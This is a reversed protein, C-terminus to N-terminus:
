EIPPDSKDALAGNKMKGRMVGDSGVFFSRAQYSDSIPTATLECGQASSTSSFAVNKVAYRYGESSGDALEKSILGQLGLTQLDTCKGQGVTAQYTMEAGFLTRLNKMAGRESPPQGWPLENDETDSVDTNLPADAADAPSGNKKAARIVGDVTSYFFSRNGQSTTLPTAHIECGGTPLNVVMFRYGHKEGKSLSLDILKTAVLAQIDGCKGYMSAMYTKEAASLTRVTSIASAENAARRAALLNPIAIAAVIPIFLLGICNLVIGAIAFGKGGYEHPKRNAKMVAVIGLILGIPATILCGVLGLIMSTIALGSKLKPTQFSQYPQRYYQHQQHNQRYNASGYSQHPTQGFGAPPTHVTQPETYFSQQQASQDEGGEIGGGGNGFSTHAAPAPNPMTAGEAQAHFLYGCRRCMLATAFNILNCNPCKVSSM